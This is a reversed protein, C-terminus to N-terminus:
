TIASYRDMAALVIRSVIQEDRAAQLSVPHKIKQGGPTLRRSTLHDRIASAAWTAQWRADAAAALTPAIVVVTVQWSWVRGNATDAADGSVARGTDPYIVAYKEPLDKPELSVAGDFVKFGAPLAETVLTVITDVSM